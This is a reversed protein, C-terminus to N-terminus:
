YPSWATGLLAERRGTGWELLRSPGSHLELAVSLLVAYHDLAPPLETVCAAFAEHLRVAVPCALIEARDDNASSMRRLLRGTGAVLGAEHPREERLIEALRVAEAVRRATEPRVAGAKDLVAELRGRVCMTPEGAALADVLDRLEPARAYHGLWVLAATPGDIADLAQVAHGALDQLQGLIRLYPVDEPEGLRTLLALGVCVAMPSTGTRTLCRGLARARAEDPLPLGAVAFQVHGGRISPGALRLHIEEAARVTDAADPPDTDTRAPDPAATLPALVDTLAAGGAM